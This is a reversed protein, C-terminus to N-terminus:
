PQPPGTLQRSRPLRCAFSLTLKYLGDEAKETYYMRGGDAHGCWILNPDRRDRNLFAPLGDAQDPSGHATGHKFISFCVSVDHFRLEMWQDLSRPKLSFDDQRGPGAPRHGSPLSQAGTHEPNFGDTIKVM